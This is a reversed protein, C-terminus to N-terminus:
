NSIFKRGFLQMDKKIANSHFWAVNRFDRFQKSTISIHGATGKTANETSWNTPRPEPHVAQVVSVPYSREDFFQCM